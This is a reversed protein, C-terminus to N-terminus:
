KMVQNYIDDTDDHLNGALGSKSLSLEAAIPVILLYIFTGIIYATYGRYLGRM